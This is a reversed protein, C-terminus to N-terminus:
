PLGFEVRPIFTLRLRPLLGAAAESSYIRLERGSVGERSSRLMVAPPIRAPDTTRFFRLFAVMDIEVVEGESPVVSVSDAGLTPGATFILAAKAPDTIVASATVLNPIITITDGREVGQPPAPTLLLTARVVTTSDVIDLPLNFRLYTRHSPMGGIVLEDAAPPPTRKLIIVYDALAAALSRDDEPTTSNLSVPLARVATDPSPDIFARAPRGVQATQLRLEGSKGGEGVLEVGLRLREGAQVKALVASKSLPILLSDNTATDALFEQTFTRSGILRGSTFFAALESAVTDTTAAAIDYLNVTVSAPVTLRSPDIELVVWASDVITIPQTTTDTSVPQFRQPLIDFRLVGRTQLTDGRSAVLIQAETGIPPIGVFSTDITVPRIVTDRLAINQNPCLIPCAEGSDLDESCGAAGIVLLVALGALSRRVRSRHLVFM